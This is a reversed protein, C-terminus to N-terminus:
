TTPLTLHTYSVPEPVSPERHFERHHEWQAEKPIEKFIGPEESEEPEQKKPIEKKPESEKKPEKEKKPESEKKTESEKRPEPRNEKKPESEKRTDNKRNQKPTSRPTNNRSGGDISTSRSLPRREQREQQRKLERERLKGERKANKKEAKEVTTKHLQYKVNQCGLLAKLEKITTQIEEQNEGSKNWVNITDGKQRVSLVIGCLGESFQFQEGILALVLKNWIKNTADKNSSNIVWKGGDRNLPDEWMPKIGEKFLRLNTGDPFKVVKQLNNWYRWFDQVNDFKGLAKIASEYKDATTGHPMQDDYWFVWQHELALKSALLEDRQETKQASGEEEIQDDLNELDDYDLTEEEESDDSWQKTTNNLSSAKLEDETGSLIEELRSPEM